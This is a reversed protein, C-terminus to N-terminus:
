SLPEIAFKIAAMRFLSASAGPSGIAICSWFASPSGDILFALIVRAAAAGAMFRGAADDAGKTNPQEM